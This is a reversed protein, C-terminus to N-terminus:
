GDDTNHSSFSRSKRRADSAVVKVWELLRATTKEQDDLDFFKRLPTEEKNAMSMDCSDRTTSSSSSKSLSTIDRQNTVARYFQLGPLVKFLKPDMDPSDFRFGLDIFGNIDDIDHSTFDEQNPLRSLKSRELWVADLRDVTSPSRSKAKAPHAVPKAERQTNLNSM